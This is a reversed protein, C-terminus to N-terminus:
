PTTTGADIFGRLTVLPAGRSDALSVIIQRIDPDDSSRIDETVRWDQDLMRVVPPRDIAKGHDLSLEALRNEAVWQATARRELGRAADVSGELARILGASAIALIALAVLAEILTFGAENDPMTM